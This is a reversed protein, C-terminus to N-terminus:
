MYGQSILISLYYVTMIESDTWEQYVDGNTVVQTHEGVGLTVVPVPLIASSSTCRFPSWWFPGVLVLYLSTSFFWSLISKTDIYECVILYAPIVNQIM